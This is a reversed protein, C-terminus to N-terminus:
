EKLYRNSPIILKDLFGQNGDFTVSFEVEDSKSLNDITIVANLNSEFDKPLLRSNSVLEQLLYHNSILEQKVEKVSEKEISNSVAYFFISIAVVIGSLLTIIRVISIARNTTDRFIQKNTIFENIAYTIGLMIMIIALLIPFGLNIFWSYIVYM